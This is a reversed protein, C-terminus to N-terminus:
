RAVHSRYVSRSVTTLGLSAPPREAKGVVLFGGPSLAAAIRRFMSEMVHAQLYIVLNRCLVVDWEGAPLDHAADGSAWFAAARLRDAIRWGARTREFFRSAKSDDVCALAENGFIGARAAALAESRCDMGLLMARDLLGSEALLMGVSYLEEGTACGLSLVRIPGPREALAPIVATRIAEFVAPDRFFSTVGILLTNLAATRLGPEADLRALAARESNAKLARLCAGVRRELPSCRYAAPDLGAHALVTAPLGGPTGESTRRVERAHPGPQRVAAGESPTRPIPKGEFQVHSLDM